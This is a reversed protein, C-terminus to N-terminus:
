EAGGEMSWAFPERIAEGIAAVLRELEIVLKRREAYLTKDIEPGYMAIECLRMKDYHAARALGRRAMDDGLRCLFRAIVRVM